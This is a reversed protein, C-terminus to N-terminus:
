MGAGMEMMRQIQIVERPTMWYRVELRDKIKEYQLRAERPYGAYMATRLYLTRAEISDPFWYVVKDLEKKCEAWVEPNKFHTRQNPHYLENALEWHAYPVLLPAKSKPARDAQFRAFLFLEKQNGGWKPMLASLMQQQLFYNDPEQKTAALFIKKEESRTSKKTKSAGILGAVTLLNTSDITNAEVLYKNAQELREEFLKFNEESLAQKPGRGRAEFAFDYTWLGLLSLAFASKPYKKYWEELLPKADIMRMVSLYAKFLESDGNQDPVKNKQLEKLLNEAENFKKESILKEVPSQFPLVEIKSDKMAQLVEKKKEGPAHSKLYMM